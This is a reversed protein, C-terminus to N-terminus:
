LMRVWVDVLSTELGGLVIELGHSVARNLNKPM